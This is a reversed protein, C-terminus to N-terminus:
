RDWLYPMARRLEAETLATVAGDLCGGGGANAMCKNGLGQNPTSGERGNATSAEETANSGELGQKPKLGEGPAAGEEAATASGVLLTTLGLAKATRLNKLSDEFMAVQHGPSDVGAAAFARHFAAPSPKAENGMTDAGIVGQFCGQTLCDM